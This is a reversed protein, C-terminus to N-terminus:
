LWLLSARSAIRVKTGVLDFITWPLGVVLLFSFSIHKRLSWATILSGLDFAVILVAADKMGFDWGLSDAFMLGMTLTMYGGIAAVVRAVGSVNILLFIFVTTWLGTSAMAARRGSLKVQARQSGHNVAQLWLKKAADQNKPIDGMGADLIDGLGILAEENQPDEQLTAQFLKVARQLDEKNSPERQYSQLLSVARQALEEAVANVSTAEAGKEFETATSSETPTEMRSKAEELMGELAASDGLVKIGRMCLAACHDYRELSMASSAARWFGRGNESDELLGAEADQLALEHQELRARAQARNVYLQGLPKGSIKLKRCLAIGCSYSEVAATLDGSTLKTNGEVKFTNVQEIGTEAEAPKQEGYGAEGASM